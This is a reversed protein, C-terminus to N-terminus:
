RSISTGRKGGLILTGERLMEGATKMPQKCIYCYLIDDGYLGDILLEGPEPIHGATLRLRSQHEGDCHPCQYWATDGWRALLPGQVDM